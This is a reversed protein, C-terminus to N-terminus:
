ALYADLHEAVFDDDNLCPYIRYIRDIEAEQGPSLDEHPDLCWRGAMLGQRRLVEHIGAICGAYGNAADFLAANCDTVQAGCTLLAADVCGNLLASKCRELLEVAKHTWVAWHGLLGGVIATSGSEENGFSFQTVLDGVIHDDNGTYLAIQNQRGSDIVARAVDLTQYRNFPAVKIALVREIECFRRWFSYPLVRGGVAPQLYFGFIPIMEAVSRCHELIGEVDGGKFASLSLLGCDYGLSLALKAEQKAQATDGVLGAIKVVNAATPHSDITEAALELVPHYLGVCPDHIAFQTTHV